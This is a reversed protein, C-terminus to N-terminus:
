AIIEFNDGIGEDGTGEHWRTEVRYNGPPYPKGAGDKMEFTISNVSPNNRHGTQEAQVVKLQGIRSEKLLRGAVYSLTGDPNEIKITLDEGQKLKNGGDGAHFNNTYTGM